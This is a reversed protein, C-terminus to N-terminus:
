EVSVAVPEGGPLLFALLEGSALDAILYPVDYAARRRDTDSPGAPGRPHSHYLGALDLGAAAMARLARLLAGPDALYESEPRASVNPLPYLARAHWVPGSDGERWLGGLAGVCERPAEQRAQAWLEAAVQAPLYLAPSVGSHSM